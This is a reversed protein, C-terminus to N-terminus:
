AGPAYRYSQMEPVGAITAMPLDSDPISFVFTSGSGKKSEVWISGGMREVIKRCTALGIGHGAIEDSHDLREYLTFIHLMEEKSMGIGNDRVSFEIMGPTSRSSVHIKPLVGESSYKIANDILNQFVRSLQIADGAVEPLPDHTVTAGHADVSAQLNSIVVDVIEDSNVREITVEKDSSTAYELLESVLGLMRRVSDMIHTLSEDVEEDQGKAKKSVLSAFGLMTQLPANLDHSVIGAFNKLDKNAVSLNETYVALQTELNKKETQDRMIKVFGKLPGGADRVATVLGNAWFISGDKKQHWREDNARGETAATNLEKKDIDIELDPPTFIISFPKGVFEAEEYGLLRKVGPNWTVITGETDIMFLAYDKMEEILHHFLESNYSDQTPGTDSNM